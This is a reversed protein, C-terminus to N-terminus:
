EEDGPVEYPPQRDEPVGFLASACAECVLEDDYRTAAAKGDGGGTASMACDAAKIHVVLESAFVRTEPPLEGAKVREERTVTTEYHM